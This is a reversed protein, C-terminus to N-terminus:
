RFSLFGGEWICGLLLFESGNWEGVVTLPHGGSVALLKWGAGFNAPLELMRSNRDVLHWREGEVAPTIQELVFLFRDVWPNAALAAGYAEMAETITAFGQLKDPFGTTEYHNKILARLPFASPYFVLEADVCTGPTLSEAFGRGRVAFQLLLAPRRDEHSWLWTYQTQLQEEEEIHLGVVCWDRRLGTGSLMNEQSQTFGIRDRIDAGVPPPLSDLRKFGELLLYLRGIRELLRRHGDSGGASLAPMSRLQRAVGPAQADVMRAAPADWFAYSQIPLSAFGQRVLDRLWLELEEMGARVKRLREEARRAQAEADPPKPAADPKKETRAARSSLWAAVWEPRATGTFAATQGALLLLLALSHKCPFKMSPCSCKHAPASLDIQVKYPAPGSGQCEGWAAGEDHGLNSWGKLTALKQGAKAAAADPAMALIQDTTLTM